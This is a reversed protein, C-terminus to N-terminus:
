KKNTITEAGKQLAITGTRVMEIIGYPKIMEEFKVLHAYTDSIEITMTTLSIDAVKAGMIECITLVESRKNAPVSLKVMLLERALLEDKELTRVKIVEILKNLQKEIQELTYSNGDAVITIRSIAPNDTVGVALSDINFGRRSFLGTIRSLAGAHNEVLISITRKM